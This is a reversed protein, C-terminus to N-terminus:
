RGTSQAPEVVRQDAAADRYGDALNELQVRKLRTFPERRAVASWFGQDDLRDIVESALTFLRTNRAVCSNLDFERQTLGETKVARDTEVDRLSTVTERFRQSIEEFRQKERALEGEVQAKDAQTKVLEAEAGRSRRGIEAQAAKLSDREKKAQELDARIRANEAQLTTREAALQQLQLLQQQMAQTNVSGTRAAQAGATASLFVPVATVLILRLIHPYRAMM